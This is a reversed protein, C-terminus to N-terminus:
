RLELPHERRAHAAPSSLPSYGYYLLGTLSKVGIASVGFADSLRPAMVAPTSRFAYQCAYYLAMPIWALWAASKERKMTQRECAQADYYRSAM